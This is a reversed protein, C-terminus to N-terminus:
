GLAIRAQLWALSPLPAYRQLKAALDRAQIWDDAEIALLALGFLAEFREADGELVARFLAGAEDVRSLSALVRAKGCLAAADTPAVTLAADYASLAAEPRRAAFLSAALAALAAPDRPTLRARRRRLEIAAEFSGTQEHAMALVQLPAPHELGDALAAESLAAAQDMRGGRMAEAIAELRSADAQQDRSASPSSM